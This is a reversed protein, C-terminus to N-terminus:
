AVVCWAYTLSGGPKEADVLWALTEADHAAAGGFCPVVGEPDDAPLAHEAFSSCSTLSCASGSSSPGASSSADLALAPFLETFADM